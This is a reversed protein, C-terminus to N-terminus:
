CTKIKFNTKQDSFNGHRELFLGLGINSPNIHLRQLMFTSIDGGMLVKLMYVNKMKNKMSTSFLEM